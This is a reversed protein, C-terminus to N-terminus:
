YNIDQIYYQKTNSVFNYITLLKMGKAKFYTKEFLEGKDNYDFSEQENTVIAKFAEKTIETHKM